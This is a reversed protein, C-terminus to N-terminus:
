VDKENKMEELKYEVFKRITDWHNDLLLENFVAIEHEELEREVYSGKEIFAPDDENSVLVMGCDLEHPLANCNWMTIWESAYEPLVDDHYVLSFEVYSEEGHLTVNRVLYYHM